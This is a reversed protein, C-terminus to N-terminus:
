NRRLVRMLLEKKEKRNASWVNRDQALKRLAMGTIELM